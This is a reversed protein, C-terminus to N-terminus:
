TGIPEPLEVGCGALHGGALRRDLPGLVTLMPTTCMLVQGSSLVFPARHLGLRAYAPTRYCALAELASIADEVLSWRGSVFSFAAFDPDQSLRFRVAVVPECGRGHGTAVRRAALSPPCTCPQQAQHNRQVTGDCAHRAARCWRLRVTHPGHLVIDITAADTILQWTNSADHQPTGGLLVAIRDLVLPDDSSVRWTTLVQPRSHLLAAYHFRGAPAADAASNAAFVSSKTGPPAHPIRRAAL